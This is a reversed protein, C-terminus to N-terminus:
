IQKFNVDIKEYDVADYDNLKIVVNSPMEDAMVGQYVGKGFKEKNKYEFSYINIGSPSRGILSINKKLKRDSAGGTLGAGFGEAGAAVLGTSFDMAQNIFNGDQRAQEASAYQGTRAAIMAQQKDYELGRAESAGTLQLRQQTEAGGMIMQQQQAAGGMIQAQQAAAGGMIQAQQSAAGGMIQSQQNAAGQARAMEASQAGQASAMQNSGAQQAAMAQNQSEQQGISASSQQAQRMNQNSLAQALGAVGSSGAGASLSSMMNAQSQQFQQKEFEAQQTNVTLDEATNELNGFQNQVNAFQNQAGAFANKAGGYANTAGAYVNKADAYVNKADAALNSTDLDGFADIADNMRGEAKDAKRKEAKDGFWGGEESWISDFMGRTPSSKVLNLTNIRKGLAM